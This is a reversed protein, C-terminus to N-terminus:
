RWIDNSKATPDAPDAVSPTEFFTSGLCMTYCLRNDEGWMSGKGKAMHECPEALCDAWGCISCSFANVTAGMSYGNRKGDLIEHVLKTDKTRDWLTVINIKWIDYKPIYIMSADAIYGKAQTPDTNNHDTFTCKNQFTQYVMKGQVPDFYAVEELPFGQLNRNPVDVTVIPMQVMVYDEPKNSIHYAESIAPLLDFDIQAAPMNTAKVSYKNSGRHKELNKYLQLNFDATVTSGYVLNTNHDTFWSDHFHKM